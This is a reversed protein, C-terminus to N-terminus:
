WVYLRYASVAASRLYIKPARKFDMVLKEGAKITGHNVTGDFSIQISAGGGGNDNCIVIAQSVFARDIDVFEFLADAFVNTNPTNGESYFSYTKISTTNTGAM